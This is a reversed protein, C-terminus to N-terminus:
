NKQVCEYSRLPIADDDGGFIIFNKSLFLHRRLKAVGETGETEQTNIFYMCEPSAVINIFNKLLWDVTTRVSGKM